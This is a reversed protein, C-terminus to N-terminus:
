NTARRLGSRSRKEGYAFEGDDDFITIKLLDEEGENLLDGDAKQNQVEVIKDGKLQHRLAEKPRM